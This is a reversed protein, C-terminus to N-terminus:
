LNEENIIAKIQDMLDERIEQIAEINDSEDAAVEDLFGVLQVLGDVSVEPETEADISMASMEFPEMMMSEAGGGSMAMIGNIQELKWCAIWLWPTDALFVQLDALDIEYQSTGTADLNCMYKWEYWGESQNPDALNPDAIWTPDNPDHCLWAESFKSFEEYNVIGDADWDLDNSIDAQSLYDDECDYVEDAGIDVATGYQRDMGEGDIDVQGTYTMFPNAKDKCFSNHALHYNEPDPTGNPDVTYAFDPEDNYNTTDPENCDQICCFNAYTDASFGAVQNGGPNNYYVICNQVDPWDKDNPDSTTGNDSFSIGAAMNNALTNNYLKPEATPNFMFIGAHGSEGLGSECILSNKVTPTSYLSFIGHQMNRIIQSNEVTLTYGDGEHLIGHRVSGSIKCWKVTVDGDIARIGYQDNNVIVCNEITFDVGNGYIAYDVSEMVTFGDLLTNDGMTVVTDVDAPGIGDIQGTLITKRSRPNRESFDCGGTKFGGYVSINDSLEFTSNINEPSYIGQAVYVDYSQTCTTEKARKTAKFLDTYADTWSTGNNFGTATEDVYIIDPDVTDWCCIGTELPPAVSTGLNDSTAVANNVIPIGPESRYNVEVTLSVCNADEPGVDGIHWVYAHEDSHYGPDPPIINFNPDIAYKAGAYDVADPLYDIIVVGTATETTSYNTVCLTYEVEEGPSLCDNADDTKTLVIAPDIYNRGVCIGALRSITFGNADANTFDDILEWNNPESDSADWWEISGGDRYSTIFVRGAVDSNTAVGTASTGINGYVLNNPDFTRKIINQHGMFAGAYVSDDTANYDISVVEKAMNIKEIFSFNDSMDYAYIEKYTPAIGGTSYRYESVYLIDGNIALDCANQIQGLTITPAQYTLTQETADWLFIYLQNSNRKTCLLRSNDADYVIGADPRVSLTITKIFTLSQAEIIDIGSSFEVTRFLIDHEDDIELDVGGGRSLSLFERQELAGNIADFSFVNAGHDTVYLSEALLSSSVVSLILVCLFFMRNSSM